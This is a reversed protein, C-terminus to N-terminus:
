AGSAVASGLIGTRGTCRKISVLSVGYELRIPEACDPRKEPLSFAEAEREAATISLRKAQAFNRPETEHAV